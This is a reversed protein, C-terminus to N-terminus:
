EFPPPGAEAGGSSTSTESENNNTNGESSTNDNSLSINFDEGAYSLQLVELTALYNVVGDNQMVVEDTSHYTSLNSIDFDTSETSLELSHFVTEEMILEGNIKSAIFEIESDGKVINIVFRFGDKSEGATVTVGSPISSKLEVTINRNESSWDLSISQSKYLTKGNLSKAIFIVRRVTSDSIVIFFTGKFEVAEQTYVDGDVTTINVDIYSIHEIQESEEPNNLSMLEKSVSLNFDDSKIEKEESSNSEVQTPESSKPDDESNGCGSFILSATLASLWISYKL